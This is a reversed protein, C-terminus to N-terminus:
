EGGVEKLAAIIAARLHPSEILWGRDSLEQQAADVASEPLNEALANIVRRARERRTILLEKPNMVGYFAAEICAEPIKSM